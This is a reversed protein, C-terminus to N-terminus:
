RCIVEMQSGGAAVTRIDARVELKSGLNLQKVPLRHLSALALRWILFHALSTLGIPMPCYYTRLVYSRKDM